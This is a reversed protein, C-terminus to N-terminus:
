IEDDSLGLTKQEEKWADAWIAALDDHVESEEISNNM